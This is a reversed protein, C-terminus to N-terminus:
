DVRKKEKEERETREQDREAWAAFISWSWVCGAEVTILIMLVIGVTLAGFGLDGGMLGPEFVVRGGRAKDRANARAVMIGVPVFAALLIHFLTLVGTLTIDGAQAEKRTTDVVRPEASTQTDSTQSERGRSGYTPFQGYALRYLIM